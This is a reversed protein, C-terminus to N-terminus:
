PTDARVYYDGSLQYSSGLTTKLQNVTAFPPVVLDPAIGLPIEANWTGKFLPQQIVAGEAPTSWMQAKEISVGSAGILSLDQLWSSLQRFGQSQSPLDTAKEYGKGVVKPQAPHQTQLPHTLADNSTPLHQTQKTHPPLQTYFDDVSGFQRRWDANCTEGKCELQTMVWGRHELPLAKALQIWATHQQQGVAALGQVLQNASALYAPNPDPPTPASPKPLNKLMDEREQIQLYYFGGLVALGLVLFGVTILLAKLSPIQKLKTEARPQDFVTQASLQEEDALLGLDGVRRVSTGQYMAEFEEILSQAEGITGIFDFGPVPRGANLAVVAVRQQPMGFVFLEIGGGSWQDALHLAASYMPNKTEPINSCIGVFDQLGSSAYWELGERRLKSLTGRVLKESSDLLRWEMGLVFRYQDFSIWLASQNM